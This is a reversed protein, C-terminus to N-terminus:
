GLTGNIWRTLKDNWGSPTDAYWNNQRAIFSFTGIVEPEFGKQDKLWTNLFVIPGANEETGADPVEPASETIDEGPVVANTDNTTSSVRAM